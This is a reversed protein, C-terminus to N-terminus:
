IHVSIRPSSGHAFHLFFPPFVRWQMVTTWVFNGARVSVLNEKIRIWDAEVNRVRYFNFLKFSSLRPKAFATLQNLQFEPQSKSVVTKLFLTCFCHPEGSGQTCCQTVARTNCPQNEARHLSYRPSKGLPLAALAHRQCSV